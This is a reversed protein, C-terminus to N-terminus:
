GPQLGGRLQTAGHMEREGPFPLPPPDKGGGGPGWQDKDVRRSLRNTLLSMSPRRPGYMPTTQGPLYRARNLPTGLAPDKNCRYSWCRHVTRKGEM